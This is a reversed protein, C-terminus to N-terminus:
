QGEEGGGVLTVVKRLAWIARAMRVGFWCLGFFLGVSLYVRPAQDRDAVLCGLAVVAVFASSRMTGWWIRWLDDYRASQRVITMREMNCLGVMISAMTVSFGFLSGFVQVITQYLGTRNGELLSELIAMGELPSLLWATFGATVVGAAGLEFVLFNASWKQVVSKLFGRESLGSM